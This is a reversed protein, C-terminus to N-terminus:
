TRTKKAGLPRAPVGGWVSNPPVDAIVTSGAGVISWDGVVVCPIASSGVGCLSGEGMHVGGCMTVGPAVHAHDGIICDHDVRCGTNLIVNDGIKADVNVIVGATVITGAGLSVSDAIIASPHIVTVPTLGAELYEAFLASRATNDGVAVIFSDAQIGSRDRTVPIGLIEPPSSEGGIVGSVQLGATKATDIVVKAHGGAGIVLLGV